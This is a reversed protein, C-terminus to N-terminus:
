APQDRRRARDVQKALMSLFAIGELAYEPSDPLLDHARPNRFALVAGVFLHMMGEQEDGDIQDAGDNFSLIPNKKSFVTTMLGAGDLDHRRAREKVLNGLALSADLLANRYHGDEYLEASAALIRPHLDLGRFAARIRTVPDPADETLRDSLDAILGELLTITRPIGAAFNSQYGAQNMGMWTSGYPIRHHQNARYQPSNEGFIELITAIIARQANIVRQDDSPMQRPDFTAVEDRRKQLKAIGRKIEEQTLTRIELPPPTPTRSKAM